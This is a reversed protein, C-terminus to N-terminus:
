ESLIGCIIDSSVGRLFNHFAFGFSGVRCVLIIAARICSGCRGSGGLPMALLVLITGSVLHYKCHSRGMGGLFLFDGGFAVSGLFIGDEQRAPFGGCTATFVGLFKNFYM